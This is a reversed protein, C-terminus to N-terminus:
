GTKQAPAIRIRVQVGDELEVPTGEQFTNLVLETALVESQIYDGFHHVAPLLAPHGELEIRVRDTVNFGMEKRLNQIRNVLDRAIGEAQLEPTLTVDLAVTLSGDGATKWGPLDEATIIVDDLTLTYTSDEVSLTISGNKELAGIEAQDFAAIRAAVAQMHKGLRAGLTKFNAKAAKKIWGSADTVYEIQKVNIESLIYDKVSEVEEQFHEDLVPLL